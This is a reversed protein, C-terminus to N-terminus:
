FRQFREALRDRVETKGTGAAARELEGVLTAFAQDEVEVEFEWELEQGIGPSATHLANPTIFSLSM